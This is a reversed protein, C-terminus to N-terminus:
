CFFFYYIYSKDFLWFYYFIKLDYDIILCVFIKCCIMLNVFFMEIILELVFIMLYSKLLDFDIYFIWIEVIGCVCVLFLLYVFFDWIFIGCYSYILM